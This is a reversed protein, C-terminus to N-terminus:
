KLLRRHLYRLCYYQIEHRQHSVRGKENLRVLTSVGDKLGDASEPTDIAM